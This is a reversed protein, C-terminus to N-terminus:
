FYLKFKLLLYCPINIKSNFAVIDLYLQFSFVFGFPLRIQRGQICIFFVGETPKLNSDFM